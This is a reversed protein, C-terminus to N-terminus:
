TISMQNTSHHKLGKNIRRARNQISEPCKADRSSSLGWCWDQLEQQPQVLAPNSGMDQLGYEQKCLKTCHKGKECHSSM